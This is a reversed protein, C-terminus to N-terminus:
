TINSAIDKLTINIWFTAVVRKRLLSVWANMSSCVWQIPVKGLRIPWDVPPLALKKWSDEYRHPFAVVFVLSKVRFKKFCCLLNFWANEIIIPSAIIVITRWDKWGRVLNPGLVLDTSILGMLEFASSKIYQNISCWNFFIDEPSSPLLHYSEGQCGEVFASAHTSSACRFPVIFISLQQKSYNFCKRM